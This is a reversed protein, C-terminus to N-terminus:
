NDFFFNILIKEPNEGKSFELENYFGIKSLKDEAIRMKRSPFDLEKGCNGSNWIRIKIDPSYLTWTKRIKLSHQGRM